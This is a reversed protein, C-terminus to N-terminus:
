PFRSSEYHKDEKSASPVAEPLVMLSSEKEFVWPSDFSKFIRETSLPM